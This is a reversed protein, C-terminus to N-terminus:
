SSLTTLTFTLSFPLLFLGNVSVDVSAAGISRM